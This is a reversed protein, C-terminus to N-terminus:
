SHDTNHPTADADSAPAAAAQRRDLADRSWRLRVRDRASPFQLDYLDVALQGYDLAVAEGRDRDARLLQVVGRLHHAIEPLETATLLAAFRRMIPKERSEADDPRALAGIARGLGRRAVHSAHGDASQHHVAFLTLALHAAREAPSPDDSTGTLREPAGAFVAAFAVPDSGIPAGAAGRLAALEARASAVDAAYRKQLEAARSAVHRRLAARVSETVEPRTPKETM